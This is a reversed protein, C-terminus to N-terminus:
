FRSTDLEVDFPEDIHIPHGFPVRITKSYLGKVPDSFLTTSRDHRANSKSTIELDAILNHPGRPPPRMHIGEVTLEPRWGKRWTDLLYSWGRDTGAYPTSM